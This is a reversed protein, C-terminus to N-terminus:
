RPIISPLIIEYVSNMPRPLVDLRSLRLHAFLAAEKSNWSQTSQCACANNGRTHAKTFRLSFGLTMSIGKGSPSCSDDCPTSDSDPCELQNLRSCLFRCCDTEISARGRSMGRREKRSTSVLLLFFIRSPQYFNYVCRAGRQLTENRELAGAHRFQRRSWDVGGQSLLPM